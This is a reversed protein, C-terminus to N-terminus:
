NRGLDAMMQQIRSQKANEEEEWDIETAPQEQEQEAVTPEDVPTEEVEPEDVKEVEEEEIYPQEEEEEIEKPNRVQSVSTTISHGHELADIMETSQNSNDANKQPQEDGFIGSAQKACKMVYDEAGQRSAQYILLRISASMNSQKNLWDISQQDLDGQLIQIRRKSM